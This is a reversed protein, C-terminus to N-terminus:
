RRKEPWGPIKGETIAHFLRDKVGPADAQLQKTLKKVYERKTKGDAPCPNKCVPLQYRNRFGIVEAESVYILPRILTLGTRDLYTEPSFSYFRGEYILSLLMTEILDDRHHAYAIKNCGLQLAAENLAGKRLKACLSCPNKEKRVDFVIEAIQTRRLVFPVGRAACFAEVASFDAEKEFGLDLTIACLSFPVPYYRRLAALGDLLALSDKGGSLGVAIRDGPAIMEYDAIARRMLSQLQRM